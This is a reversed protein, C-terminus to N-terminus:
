MKFGITSLKLWGILILFIRYTKNNIMDGLYILFNIIYFIFFSHTEGM